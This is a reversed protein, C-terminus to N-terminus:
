MIFDEIKMKEIKTGYNKETSLLARQAVKWLQTGFYKEVLQVTPMFFKNVWIMKQSRSLQIKKQSYLHVGDFKNILSYFHGSCTAV